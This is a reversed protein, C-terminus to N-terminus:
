FIQDMANEIDTEKDMKMKDKRNGDTVKDKNTQGTKMLNIPENKDM